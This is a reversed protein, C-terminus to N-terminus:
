LYTSPSNLVELTDADCAGGRLKFLSNQMQEELAELQAKFRRERELDEQVNLCYTM